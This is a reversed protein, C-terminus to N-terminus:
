TPCNSITLIIKSKVINWPQAGAIGIVSTELLAAKSTKLPTRVMLIPSLRAVRVGSSLSRGVVTRVAEKVFWRSELGSWAEEEAYEQRILSATWHDLKLVQLRKDEGTKKHACQIQLNMQFHDAFFLLLGSFRLICSQKRNPMNNTMSWAHAHVPM